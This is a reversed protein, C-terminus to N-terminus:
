IHSIHVSRLVISSYVGLNPSISSAILGSLSASGKFKGM